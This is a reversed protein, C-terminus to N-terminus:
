TSDPQAPNMVACRRTAHACKHVSRGVCGPRDNRPNGLLICQRVGDRFIEGPVGPDVVIDARQGAAERFGDALVVEHTGAATATTATSAEFVLAIVHAGLAKALQIAATGIGGAGPGDRGTRAKVTQM